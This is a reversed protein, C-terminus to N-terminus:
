VGYATNETWKRSENHKNGAAMQSLLPTYEDRNTMRHPLSDELSTEQNSVMVRIKRLIAAMRTQGIFWCQTYGNIYVIPLVVTITPTSKIYM